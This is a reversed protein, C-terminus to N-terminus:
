EEFNGFEEVVPPDPVDIMRVSIVDREHFSIVDLLFIRRLASKKIHKKIPERATKRKKILCGIAYSRELHTITEWLPQICELFNTITKTM